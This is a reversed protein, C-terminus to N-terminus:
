AGRRRVGARRAGGELRDRKPGTTEDRAPVIAGAARLRTVFTSDEPPRDDAYAADAGATTRLDATDYQDKIAIVVGHLPGILRGTDKYHRDQAAATELADPLAPDDDSASTMSRATREGFGWRKRAGPRLNLTVLANVRGANPITSIVGLRGDPQSVCTGNYAKVRELYLNVVESSTTRGGTIAAQIDAITAEYIRFRPTAQRAQLYAASAGLLFLVLVLWPRARLVRKM